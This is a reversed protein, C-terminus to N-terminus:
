QATWMARVKGEPIPWGQKLRFELSGYSGRSPRFLFVTAIRKSGKM